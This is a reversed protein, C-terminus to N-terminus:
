IQDGDLIRIRAQSRAVGDVAPIRAYDLELHNYYDEILKGLVLQDENGSITAQPLTVSHM